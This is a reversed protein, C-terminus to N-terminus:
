CRTSSPLYYCYILFHKRTFLVCCNRWCQIYLKTAFRTRGRRFKSLESDFFLFYNIIPGSERSMDLDVFPFLFFIKFEKGKNNVLKIYICIQNIIINVYIILHFIKYWKYFVDTFILVMEIEKFWLSRKLRAMTTYKPLINFTMSGNYNADIQHEANRSIKELVFTSATGRFSWLYRLVVNIYRFQHWEEEYRISPM